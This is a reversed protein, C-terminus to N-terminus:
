TGTEPKTQDAFTSAPHKLNNDLTDFYAAEESTLYRHATHRVAVGYRDNGGPMRECRVVSAFFRMRLHRPAKTLESPFTLIYEIPAHLLIPHETVFFAGAASIDATECGSWPEGLARLLVSFHMDFRPNKRRERSRYHMRLAELDFAPVSGM